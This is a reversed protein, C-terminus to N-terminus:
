CLIKIDSLKLLKLYKLSNINKIYKYKLLNGKEEYNLKLVYGGGDYVITISKVKCERGKYIFKKINHWPCEYYAKKINEHIKHTFYDIPYETLRRGESCEHYHKCDFMEYGDKYKKFLRGNVYKTKM